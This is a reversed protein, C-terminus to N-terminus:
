CFRCEERVIDCELSVGEFDDYAHVGVHLVSGLPRLLEAGCTEDNGTLWPVCQNGTRRTVDVTEDFRTYLDADGIGGSISCSISKADSPMPMTFLVTGGRALGIDTQPVGSRLVSSADATTDDDDDDDDNDGGSVNVESENVTQVSGEGTATCTLSVGSFPDDGEVTVYVFRGKLNAATCSQSTSTGRSYCSNVDSSFLAQPSSMSNVLLDVDGTGGSTSCTVSDPTYSFEMVYELLDNKAGQLGTVPVGSTLSQMGSPNTVPGGVGCNTADLGISVMAGGSGQTDITCLEIRLKGNGVTTEFKDRPGALNAVVSTDYYAASNTQGFRINKGEHIVVEDGYEGSEDNIGSKLNFTVYYKDVKINVIGGTSLDDIGKLNYTRAVNSSLSVENTQSQHWGLVFYNYGNFCKRTDAGGGMHTTKDGYGSYGNNRPDM